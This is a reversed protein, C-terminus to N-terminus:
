DARHLPSRNRTATGREVSLISKSLARDGEVHSGAGIVQMAVCKFDQAVLKEIGVTKEWGNRKM